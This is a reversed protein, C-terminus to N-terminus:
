CARLGVKTLGGKALEEQKRERARTAGSPGPSEPEPGGRKPARDARWGRSLAGPERSGSGRRKPASETSM